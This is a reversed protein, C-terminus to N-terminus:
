CVALVGSPAFAPLSWHCCNFLIFVGYLVSYNHFSKHQGRIQTNTKQALKKLTERDLIGKLTRHEEDKWGYCKNAQSQLAM